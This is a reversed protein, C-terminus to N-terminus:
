RFFPSQVTVDEDVFKWYIEPIIEIGFDEARIKYKRALNELVELIHLLQNEKHTSMYTTRIMAHGLPVAPFMAPIAFIGNELLDNSINIAKEESGIYIPIIPTKSNKFILGIDRYGNEIFRTIDWLRKIREPEQSIIDLCALVTAACGAPLAASFINTRSHYRLYEIVSEDDSAIFGGISAFAKSFTGMIFDVKNSLGFHAVTGRGWPGMVGLGHADDVHIALEPYEKKLEVLDLLPTFDRSMSFVGETILLVLGRHNKQRLAALKQAAAGVDNHTFPILRARSAQCGEFISAHNERDCLIVDQPDLLCAIVGLNTSFGTV